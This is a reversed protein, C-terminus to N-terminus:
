PVLRIHYHRAPGGTIAGVDLFNTSTGTTNTVTFLDAYSGPLNTTYQLANTKGVGTTWTVRLDNGERAVATIAFLSASNTPVTGTTFETTNDQGDGDYDDSASCLACNTSGFYQIQWSQFPTLATIYAPKINTSVGDPGTAILTVEYTGAAYIHLVSNTTTNTTGGDGFDWYRSTITGTSLDSFTVLLPATGITPNGTFDAAPPNAVNTCCLADQISITDVYWGTGVPVSSTVPGQITLNDIRWTGTPAGAKYGYIRFYM